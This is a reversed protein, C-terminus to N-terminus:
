GPHNLHMMILRYKLFGSLIFQQELICDMSMTKQPTNLFRITATHLFFKPIIGTCCLFLHLNEPRFFSEMWSRGTKMEMLYRVSYSWIRGVIGTILVLM